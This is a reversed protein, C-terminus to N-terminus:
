CSKFNDIEEPHIVIARNAIRSLLANSSDPDFSDKWVNQLFDGVIRDPNKDSNVHEHIEQRVVLLIIVDKFPANEHDCFTHLVQVVDGRIKEFHDIIAIRKGNGFGYNLEDYIRRKADNVPISNLNLGNLEIIESNDEFPIRLTSLLRELMCKFVDKTNQLSAIIVVSPQRVNNKLATVVKLAISLVKWTNPPQKPFASKMESLKRGFQEIPDEAAKDATQPGSLVFYFGSLIMVLICIWVVINMVNHNTGDM